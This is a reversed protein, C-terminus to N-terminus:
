TDGEVLALFGVVALFFVTIKFAIKLLFWLVKGM